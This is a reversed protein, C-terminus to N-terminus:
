NCREVGGTPVLNPVHVFLLANGGVFGTQIPSDSRRALGCYGVCNKQSRM